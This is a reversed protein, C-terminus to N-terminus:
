HTKVGDDYSCCMPLKKYAEKNAEVKNTSHGVDAISKHIKDETTKDNRFTATLIQTEKNWEVQKVGKIYAANEIREKCMGCVGKVEIEIKSIKTNKADQAEVNNIFLLGIVILISKALNKM